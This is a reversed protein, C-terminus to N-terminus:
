CYLHCQYTAISQRLLASMSVNRYHQCQYTVISNRLLSPVSVNCCLGMISLSVSVCRLLISKPVECCFQSKPVDCYFQSQYTPIYSTKTRRLLISQPIDCHLQCQYTEISNINTSQLLISTAVSNINVRKMLASMLVDCNLYCLHQGIVCSASCRFIETISTKYPFRQYYENTELRGVNTQNQNLCFTNRIYCYMLLM